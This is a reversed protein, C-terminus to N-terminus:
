MVLDIVQTTLFGVTSIVKSEVISCVVSDVVEWYFEDLSMPVGKNSM